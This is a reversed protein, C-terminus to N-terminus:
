GIMADNASFIKVNNYIMNQVHFVYDIEWKCNIVIRFYYNTM